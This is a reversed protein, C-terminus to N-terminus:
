EVVAHVFRMEDSTEKLFNSCSDVGDRQDAANGLTELNFTEPITDSAHDPLVFNLEADAVANGLNQPALDSRRHLSQSRPPFSADLELNHILLGLVHVHKDLRQWFCLLRGVRRNSVLVDIRWATDLRTVAHAAVLRECFVTRIM